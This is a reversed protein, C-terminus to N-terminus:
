PVNQCQESFMHSVEGYLDYSKHALVLAAQRMAARSAEAHSGEASSLEEDSPCYAKSGAAQAPFAGQPHGGPPIM